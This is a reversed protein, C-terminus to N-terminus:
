YPIEIKVNTGKNANDTISLKGGILLSRERMGILGFSDSKVKQGKDFGIGNDIIEMSFTKKNTKLRIKVDTAQSHRVVNSLAEQMIRFLEVSQQPNFKLNTISNEIQCNIQYREKFENVHQNVAEIFGLMDLVEFRLETMVKRTNKIANDVLNFIHGFKIMVDSNSNSEVGKLITKKLMGLDFKIAILTQGLEDHIERSLAIREEERINHQHAAYNKLEEEIEKRQTIDKIIIHRAKTEKFTISHSTIEVFIVEGNKKVNRWSGGPNFNKRTMEIDKMLEDIDEKLHLDILTMSLFEQRSYGYHQIAAENIEIFRLTELDFILMPQPNNAFMIRYKEENERLTQESQKRDTIDMVTGMMSITNGEANFVLQGLGNVWRTEKDNLRIIRYEKNFPSHNAIVENNLYTNMMERDDPHIIELWTQVNRNFNSNIGFIQNLVDSSEWYDKQFDVKYSGINGIRQSEKFFFESEILAMEAQKRRTVDIVFVSVGTICDDSNKVSSYYNEYYTRYLAEDGYEETLIFYEGALARDFNNKAKERDKVNTILDLMNMGIEIDVGWIKRMTNKHFKSFDTYCYNNDLAFIIIDIPSELISRQLMFDKQYKQINAELDKEVKKRDTIDHSVSLIGIRGDPLTIATERLHFVCFVGDKRRNIVELERNEGLLIKKINESVVNTKDKITLLEINSGILESHSYLTTKSIEKNAELIIGNEDLVLIGSPSTEFLTRFRQESEKLLETAKEKETNQLKLQQINYAKESLEHTFAFLMKSIKSFQNTSMIPVEHFAQMFVEKDAGIEDAYKLMKEEDVEDNRVQGILWNAIHQDGVKISTGADWLGGSFCLKTIPGEPNHKGILADSFQCNLMGKETKRIIENCLRCFNSPKTIPTGDPHTILSAVGNADAFLDQLRQIDDINFIDKFQVKHTTGTSPNNLDPNIHM